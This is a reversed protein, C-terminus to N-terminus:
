KFLSQCFHESEEYDHGCGRSELLDQVRNLTVLAQTPLVIYATLSIVVGDAKATFLVIWRVIACSVRSLWIQFEFLIALEKLEARM